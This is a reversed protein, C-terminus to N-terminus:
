RFSPHYVLLITPLPHFFLVKRGLRQSLQSMIDIVEPATENRLSWSYSIGNESFCFLNRFRIHPSKSDNSFTAQVYPHGKRKEVEVKVDPKSKIFSELPGQICERILNLFFHTSVIAPMPSRFDFRVGYSSGGWHCYFIKLHSLGAKSPTRALRMFDAPAAM